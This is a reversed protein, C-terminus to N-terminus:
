SKLIAIKGKTNKGCIYFTNGLMENGICIFQWLRGCHQQTAVFAM